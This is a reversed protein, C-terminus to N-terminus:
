AKLTRIFALLMRSQEELEAIIPTIEGIPLLQGKGLLMLINAVEFVSRRAMNLFQAFEAKSVSGSGEAINNSISLTAGRLQEAFRYLRKQELENALRFLKPSLSAARRWVEMDQFRFQKQM